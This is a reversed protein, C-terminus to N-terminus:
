APQQILNAILQQRLEALTQAVNKSDEPNLLANTAGFLAPQHTILLEILKDAKASSESETM